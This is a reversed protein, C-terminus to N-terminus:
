PKRGWLEYQGYKVILQAHQSVLADEAKSMMWGRVLVYDFNKWLNPYDWWMHASDIITVPAPIAGKYRLPLLNHPYIQTDYVPTDIGCIAAFTEHSQNSAGSRFATAGTRANVYAMKLPREM